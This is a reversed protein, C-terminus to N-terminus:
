PAPRFIDQILPFRFRELIREVGDGAYEPALRDLCEGIAKVLEDRYGTVMKETCPQFGHALLSDNRSTTNGKFLFGRGDKGGSMFKQGVPDGAANLLKFGSELSIKGPLVGNNIKEFEDVVARDFKDWGPKKTDFDYKKLALQSVYETARYLRAVADDYRGRKLRRGANEILDFLGAPHPTNKDGTNKLTEAVDAMRRFCEALNEVENRGAASSAASREAERAAGRLKEPKLKRYDFLDWKELEASATALCHFLDHTHSHAAENHLNEFLEGSEKFDYENFMKRARDFLFLGSQRYANGLPVVRMTDMDPKRDPGYKVDVYLMDLNLHSAALTLAASMWKRGGTPDAAFEGAGLNLRDAIRRYANYFRDVLQASAKEASDDVEVIEIDSPSLGCPAAVENVFRRSAPTCILMVAEPKYKRITFVLPEPSEGLTLSLARYNEEKM